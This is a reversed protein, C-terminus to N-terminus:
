TETEMVRKVTAKALALSSDVVPKRLASVSCTSLETCGIIVQVCKEFGANILLSIDATAGAMIGRITNDISEQRSYYVIQNAGTEYLKADRTQRSCLVGTVGPACEKLTADIISVVTSDDIFEHVTNCPVAIVDAGCSKLWDIGENVQSSVRGKDTAGTEDWDSLPLSLMLMRPFDADTEVGVRNFELTLLRLFNATALPGM